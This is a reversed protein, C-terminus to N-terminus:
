RRKCGTKILLMEDNMNDYREGNIIWMPFYSIGKLDCDPNRACNTIKIYQFFESNMSKLDEYSNESNIYLQINKNKICNAEYSEVSVAFGTFKTILSSVFYLIMILLAIIGLTILIRQVREM